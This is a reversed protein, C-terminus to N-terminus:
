NSMPPSINIGVKHDDRLAKRHDKRRVQVVLTHLCYVPMQLKKQNNTAGISALAAATVVVKSISLFSLLIFLM